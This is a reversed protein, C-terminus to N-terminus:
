GTLGFLIGINVPEAAQGLGPLTMAAFAAGACLGTVGRKLRPLMEISM